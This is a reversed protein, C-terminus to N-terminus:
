SPTVTVSQRSHTCSKCCWLYSPPFDQSQQAGSLPRALWVGPKVVNWTKCLLVFLMLTFGLKCNPWLNIIIDTQTQGPIIFPFVSDCDKFDWGCLLHAAQSAKGVPVGSTSHCLVEWHQKLRSTPWFGIQYHM